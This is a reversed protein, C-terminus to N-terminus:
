AACNVKTLYRLRSHDHHTARKNKKDVYQHYTTYDTPRTIAPTELQPQSFKLVDEWLKVLCTDAFQYFPLLLHHCNCNNRHKDTSTNTKSHRRSLLYLLALTRCHQRSYRTPLPAHSQNLDGIEMGSTSVDGATRTNINEIDVIGSYVCIINLRLTSM